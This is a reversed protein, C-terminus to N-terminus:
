ERVADVERGEGRLPTALIALTKWCV